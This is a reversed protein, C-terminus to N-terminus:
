WTPKRKKTDEFPESDFFFVDVDVIALFFIIAPTKQKKRGKKQEAPTSRTNERFIRLQQLLGTLSSEYLFFFFLCFLAREVTLAVPIVLVLFFSFVRSRAHKKEREGRSRRRQGRQGM